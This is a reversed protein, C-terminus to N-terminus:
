DHQWGFALVGSALTVGYQGVGYGAAYRNGTLLASVSAERSKGMGAPQVWLARADAADTTLLYLQPQPVFSQAAADGPLSAAAGTLLIALASARRLTLAAPDAHHTPGPPDPDRYRGLAGDGPHQHQR